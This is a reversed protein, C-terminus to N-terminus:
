KGNYIVESEASIRTTSMADQRKIFTLASGPVGQYSWKIECFTRQGLKDTKNPGCTISEVTTAGSVPSSKLEKEVSCVVPDAKNICDSTVKSGYAKAIPTGNADMGTGGYLSVLRAGNTASNTILTRNMFYIGTDILTISLAILFVVTFLFAITNSEGSNSEKRKNFRKIFKRM